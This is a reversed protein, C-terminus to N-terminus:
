GRCISKLARWDAQSMAPGGAGAAARARRGRERSRPHSSLYGILRELEDHKKALREFFVALGDARIGARGLMALGVTDAEAEDARSYSLVALTAGFEAVGGALSSPDGVFAAVIASLGLARVLAETPHREVVHGMEHALVGAVEEASEAQDVLGRLIVVQGGPGAFANVQSSEAIRVTFRYPTDHGAALRGTLRDLAGRGAAGACFRKAGFAALGRRAVSEGWAKEWAVPVLAAVPEALGPLALYIGALVAVTAAGWALARPLVRARSLDRRGLRPARPLLAALFDADAVTLRADPAARSKLRVPRGGYAEEVLELEDYSWAAVAANAEDVVDLGGAGLRVTVRRRAATVGDHFAGAFTEM